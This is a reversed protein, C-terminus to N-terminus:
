NKRKEMKGKRTVLDTAKGSTNMQLMDRELFSTMAIWSNELEFGGPALAVYM